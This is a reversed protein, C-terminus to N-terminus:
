KERNESREYEKGSEEGARFGAHHREVAIPQFVQLFVIVMASYSGAFQQVTRVSEDAQDQDSVVEDIDEGRRNGRHNGDAQPTVGADKNGGHRQCQHNQDERFDCGLGNGGQM